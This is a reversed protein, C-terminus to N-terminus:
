RDFIPDALHAQTNLRRRLRKAILKPATAGDVTFKDNVGEIIVMNHNTLDAARGAFAKSQSVPLDDQADPMLIILPRNQSLYANMPDTKSKAASFLFIPNLASCWVFRSMTGNNGVPIMPRQLHQAGNPEVLKPAYM